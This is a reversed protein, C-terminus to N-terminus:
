RLTLFGEGLLTRMLTKRGPDDLDGPIANGTIWDTGQEAVYRVEEAVAAPFRVTKNHFHLGAIGDEVTL